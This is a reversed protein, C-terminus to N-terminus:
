RYDLSMVWGEWDRQFTTLPYGVHARLTAVGTPDKAANSRFQRYFDPLTGQEQLFYCLYRAQAYNSGPDEDYFEDRTTALLSEFSRLNGARVFRQLGPLRWNTSGWIHGDRDRCQEYLSALGENFWSPCEPFDNDVFPHVIEHVLTGGGTSINMILAQHQPTFYGYPTDPRDAFISWAHSRYSDDDGFLWVEVIERPPLDFFDKELRSVAWRVTGEARRRLQAEGEDGIMVFPREVRVSMGHPGYRERLVEARAELNRVTPPLPEDPRSHAPISGKPRPPEAAVRPADPKPEPEPEPEPGMLLADGEAERPM